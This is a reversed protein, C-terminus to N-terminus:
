KEKIQALLLIQEPQKSQLCYTLWTPNRLRPRHNLAIISLRQHYPFEVVILTGEDLDSSCSLAENGGMIGFM